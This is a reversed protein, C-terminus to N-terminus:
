VDVRPAVEIGMRERLVGLDTELEEEYFTCMLANERMGNGVRMAWPFYVEWLVERELSSLMNAGVAPGGAASLAALPLGTQILEVWKLALEGLVTPPLGTLVHWYDHNQRYRTMVYSLNPDSLFRIKSRENPHFNHTQLFIAYAAGFTITPQEQQQQQEGTGEKLSTNHQELLEAARKAVRDDVVPREVLIRRGNEDKEMAVLIKSLAYSGTVEGVAAVADARTPDNLATLSSHLLTGLRQLPSLPPIINYQQNKNDTSSPSNDNITYRTSPPSPAGYFKSTTSLTRSAISSLPAQRNTSLLLRLAAAM